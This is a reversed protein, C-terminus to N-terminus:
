EQTVFEAIRSLLDAVDPFVQSGHGEPPLETGVPERDEKRRIEALKAKYASEKVGDTWDFQWFGDITQRASFSKM